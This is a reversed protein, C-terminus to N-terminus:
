QAPVRPGTAGHFRANPLSIRMEPARHALTLLKRARFGMTSSHSNGFDEIEAEDLTDDSAHRSLIAAVSVSQLCAGHAFANRTNSQLIIPQDIGRSFHIESM